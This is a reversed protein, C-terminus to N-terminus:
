ELESIDLMEGNEWKSRLHSFYRNNRKVSNVATNNASALHTTDGNTVVVEPNNVQQTVQKNAQKSVPKTPPTTKEICMYKELVETFTPREQLILTYM